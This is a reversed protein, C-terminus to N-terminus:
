RESQIERAATEHADALLRRALAGASWRLLSSEIVPLFYALAGQEPLIALLDAPDVVTSVHAVVAGYSDLCLAKAPEGSM